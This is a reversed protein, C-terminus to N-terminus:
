SILGVIFTFLAWLELGGILLSELASYGDVVLFCSAYTARRLVYISSFFDVYSFLNWSSISRKILYFRRCCLTFHEGARTLLEAAKFRALFM